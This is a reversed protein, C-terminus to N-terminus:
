WMKTLGTMTCVNFMPRVKKVAENICNIDEELCGAEHLGLQILEPFGVIHEKISTIGGDLNNKSFHLQCLETFNVGAILDCVDVSDMGLQDLKLVQLRPFFRFSERLFCLGRKDVLFCSLELEKLPLEKSFGGFLAQMQPLGLNNNKGNIVLVELASMRYLSHGLVVAANRTLDVEKLCIIKLTNHSIADVLKKVLEGSCHKLNLSLASINDFKPLLIALRNAGVPTCTHFHLISIQVNSDNREKVQELFEYVDAEVRLDVRNLYKSKAAIVGLDHLLKKSRTSVCEVSQLYKLCSEVAVPDVENVPSKTDGERDFPFSLPVLHELGYSKSYEQDNNIRETVWSYFDTHIQVPDFPAGTFMFEHQKCAVTLNTIHFSMRDENILLVASFNCMCLFGCNLFKRYFDGLDVVESRETIRMAVGLGDLFSRLSKGLSFPLDSKLERFIIAGSHIECAVNSVELVNQLLPESFLVRGGTCQICRRLLGDKSQAEGLLAFVMDHFTEQRHPIDYCTHSSTGPLVITKSLDLTPDALKITNFHDLVLVAGDNSLGCVFQFVNEFRLCKELDSAHLKIQGLDGESICKQVIYWAALFEQITKHIFSVREAPRVNEADETIQLFGHIISTPAECKIATLKGYEFLVDDKLLAELAVRGLECLLDESDEVTKYHSSPCKRQGYDLICQVVERFVKTRARAIFEEKGKEWLISFFLTLLPVKAADLLRRKELHKVLNEAEAKGLRKELYENIDEESFGTVEAQVDAYERVDDAQSSRSTILVCCDRLQDAKFVRYVDSNSGKGYEDYGDFVFLIKDQNETIYRLLDDSLHKDEEPFLDSCRIVDKLTNCHSVDRLKIFLVLEFKKLVNREESVSTEGPEVWDLSLKKVFTSKGIGAQGEVLIRKPLLGQKSEKFLESYDVPVSQKEKKMSLRTYVQRIDEKSKTSWVSTPVTATRRYRDALKTRFTELDFPRVSPGELFFLVTIEIFDDLSLKSNLRSFTQCDM